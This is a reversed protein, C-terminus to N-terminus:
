RIWYRVGGFSVATYDRQLEEAAQEWDICTYPWAMGKKVAGIDEALEQAYEEFYSDRILVEGHQWDAAYGEAEQELAELAALEEACEPPLNEVGRLTEIREIVDRSDIMDSNNDFTALEIDEVSEASDIRRGKLRDFLIVLQAAQVDDLEAPKKLHLADWAACLAAVDSVATDKALEDRIQGATGGYNGTFSIYGHETTLTVSVRQNKLTFETQIKM